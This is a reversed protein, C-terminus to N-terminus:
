NILYWSYISYCICRTRSYILTNSYIELTTFRLYFIPSYRPEPSIDFTVCVPAAKILALYEKASFTDGVVGGKNTVFIYTASSTNTV